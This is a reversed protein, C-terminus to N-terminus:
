GLVHTLALISIISSAVVAVAVVIGIIYYVHETRDRSQKAKDAERSADEARQAAAGLWELHGGDRLARHTAVIEDVENRRWNELAELRKENDTLHRIQARLDAIERGLDERLHKIDERLAGVLERLLGNTDGRGRGWDPPPAEAM